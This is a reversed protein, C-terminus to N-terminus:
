ARPANSQWNGEPGQNQALWNLGRQLAAESQPTVEWDGEARAWSAGWVLALSVVVSALITKM